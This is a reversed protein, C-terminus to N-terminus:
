KFVSILSYYFSYTTAARTLQKKTNLWGMCIVFAENKNFHDNDCTSRTCSLLVIRKVATEARSGDMLSYMFAIKNLRDNFKTGNTSSGNCCTRWTKFILYNFNTNKLFYLSLFHQKSTRKRWDFKLASSPEKSRSKVMYGRGPRYTCWVSILGRMWTSFSLVKM